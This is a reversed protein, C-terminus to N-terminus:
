NPGGMNILVSHTGPHYSDNMWLEGKGVMGSESPSITMRIHGVVATEDAFAPGQKPKAADAELYSINDANSAIRINILPYIREELKMSGHYMPEGQSAGIAAKIEELSKNSALLKQVRRPEMPMLCEVIIRLSYTKNDKLAVGQKSILMGVPVGAPPAGTRQMRMGIDDASRPEMGREMIERQEIGIDEPTPQASGMRALAVLLMVLGICLLMKSLTIM